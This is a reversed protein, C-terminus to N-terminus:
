QFAFLKLIGLIILIERSCQQDSSCDIICDKFYQIISQPSYQDNKVINNSAKSNVNSTTEILNDGEIDNNTISTDSEIPYMKSGHIFLIFYLLDKFNHSDYLIDFQNILLKPDSKFLDDIFYKKLIPLLQTLRYLLYYRNSNSRIYRWYLQILKDISGYKKIFINLISTCWFINCQVSNYITKDLILYLWWKFINDNFIKNTDNMHNILNAFEQLIYGPEFIICYPDLENFLNDDIYFDGSLMDKDVGISLLFNELNSTVLQDQSNNTIFYWDKYKGTKDYCIMDITDPALNINNKSLKLRYQKKLQSISEKSGYTDFAPKYDNKYKNNNDNTNIMNSLKNLQDLKEIVKFDFSDGLNFQSLTIHNKDKMGYSINGHNKRSYKNNRKLAIKNSSKKVRKLIQDIAPKLSTNDNENIADTTYNDNEDKDTGNDGSTADDSDSISSSSTFSLDNQYDYTSNKLQFVNLDTFEEESSQSDGVIDM